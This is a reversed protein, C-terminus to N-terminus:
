RLSENQIEQINLKYILFNCEAWYILVHESTKIAMSGTLKNEIYVCVCV